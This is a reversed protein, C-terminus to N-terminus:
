KIELTHVQDTGEAVRVALRTSKAQSFPDPLVNPGPKVDGNETVMKRWEVTVKYEGPSAGDNATYTTLAYTGDDRVTAQAPPAALAGEAVPHYVVLAGPTPQGQFLVKGTVPVVPVQELKSASGCGASNLVVLAACAYVCGFYSFIRM